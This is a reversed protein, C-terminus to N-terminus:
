SLGAFKASSPREVHLSVAKSLGGTQFTVKEPMKPPGEFSAESDTSLTKHFGPMIFKMLLNQYRFTHVTYVLVDCTVIECVELLFDFM